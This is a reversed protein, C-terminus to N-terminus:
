FPSGVATTSGANHRELRWGRPHEVLVSWCTNGLPAYQWWTEPDTGLLAGITARATGGHTVAVLVGSPGLEAAAALVAVAARTGADRYTEGGGRREDRGAVWAAYEKPFAAAAEERTLGQWGGLDLERLRPDLRIPLGTLAAIPEATQRARGLDSSLLLSPAASAMLPAVAAAQELGHDDLPVDIQGQIRGGANHGTRAHRLLVLRKM